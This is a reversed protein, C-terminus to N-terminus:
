HALEEADSRAAIRGAGVQAASEDDTARASFAGIADIEHQVVAAPDAGGWHATM